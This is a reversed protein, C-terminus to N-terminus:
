VCMHPYTCIKNSKSCYNSLCDHNEQCEEHFNCLRDFCEKTTLKLLDGDRLHHHFDNPQRIKITDM